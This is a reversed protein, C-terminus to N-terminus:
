CQFVALLSTLVPLFDSHFFNSFVLSISSVNYSKLNECHHSHLIADDPINRQTARTLVSTESSSLAEMMLTVLNPSSPVINATVLLQHMSCFFYLTLFSTLISNLNLICLPTPTAPLPTPKYIALSCLLTGLKQRLTPITYSFVSPIHFRTALHGQTM